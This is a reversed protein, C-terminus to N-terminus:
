GYEVIHLNRRVKSPGIKEGTEDGCRVVHDVESVNRLRPSSCEARLTKAEGFLLEWWPACGGLLAFM